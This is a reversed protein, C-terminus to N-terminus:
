GYAFPQDIVPCISLSSAFLQPSCPTTWSHGVKINTCDEASLILYSLGAFGVGPIAKLKNTASYGKKATAEEVNENGNGNGNGHEHEHPKHCHWFDMMEAWNENPLDRWVKLSLMKVVSSGCGACLVDWFNRRRREFTEFGQLANTLRCWNSRSIKAM